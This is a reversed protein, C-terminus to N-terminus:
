QLTSHVLGSGTDQQAPLTRLEQNRALGAGTYGSYTLLGLETSLIALLPEPCASRSLGTLPLGPGPWGPQLSRVPPARVHGPSQQAGQLGQPPQNAANTGLERPPVDLQRRALM